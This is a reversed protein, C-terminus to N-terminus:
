GMPTPKDLGMRELLREARARSMSFRIGRELGNREIVGLAELKDLYSLTTRKSVGLAAQLESVSPMEFGWDWARYPRGVSKWSLLQRYVEALPVAPYRSV